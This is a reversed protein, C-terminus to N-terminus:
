LGTIQSSYYFWILSTSTPPARLIMWSVLNGNVQLKRQSPFYYKMYDQFYIFQIQEM